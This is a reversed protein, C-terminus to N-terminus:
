RKMLDMEVTTMWIAGGDEPFASETAAASNPNLVNAIDDPACRRTRTRTTAATTRLTACGGGSLSTM